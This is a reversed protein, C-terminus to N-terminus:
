RVYLKSSGLQTEKQDLANVLFQDQIVGAYKWEASGLTAKWLGAEKEFELSVKLAYVEPKALPNQNLFFYSKAPLLVEAAAAAALAGIGFLARRRNM